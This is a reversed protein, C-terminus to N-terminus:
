IADNKVDKLLQVMIDVARISGFLYITPAPSGASVGRWLVNWVLRFGANAFGTDFGLDGDAM